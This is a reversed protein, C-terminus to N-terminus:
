KKLLREPLEFHKYGDLNFPQSSVAWTFGYEASLLGKEAVDAMKGSLDPMLRVVTEGRPQEVYYQQDIAHIMGASAYAGNSAMLFSRCSDLPCYLPVSPD